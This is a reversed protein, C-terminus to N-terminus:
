LPIGEPDDNSGVDHESRRRAGSPDDKRRLHRLYQGSGTKFALWAVILSKLAFAGESMALLASVSTEAALLAM